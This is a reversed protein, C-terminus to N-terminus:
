YKTRPGPIPNTKRKKPRPRTPTPYIPNTECLPPAATPKNTQFRRQRHHNFLDRSKPGSRKAGCGAARSAVCPHCNPENRMKQDEVPGSHRLNPENRMKQARWCSPNPENRMIPAAPHHRHPLNPENRMNPSFGSTLIWFDPSPPGGPARTRDSPPQNPM